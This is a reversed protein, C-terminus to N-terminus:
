ARPVDRAQVSVAFLHDHAFVFGIQGDIVPVGRWTQTFGVTRLDGDLRNEAVTFDGLERHAALYARAAREAVAPDSTSGPAAIQVARWEAEATAGLFTVLLVVFLRRM